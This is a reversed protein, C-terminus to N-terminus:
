LQQCEVIRNPLFKLRQTNTCQVTMGHWAGDIWVSCLLRVNHAKQKTNRRLPRIENWNEKKENEFISNENVLFGGSLRMYLSKIRNQQEVVSRPASVASVCVSVCENAARLTYVCIYFILSRLVQIKNNKNNHVHETSRSIHTATYLQLTMPATTDDNCM